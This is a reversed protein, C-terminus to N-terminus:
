EEDEHNEEGEEETAIGYRQMALRLREMEHKLGQKKIATTKRLIAVTSKDIAGQAALEHRLETHTQDELDAFQGQLPRMVKAAIMTSSQELLDNVEDALNRIDEPLIIEPERPDVPVLDQPNEIQDNIREDSM